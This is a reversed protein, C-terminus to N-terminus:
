VQQTRGAPYLRNLAEGGLRLLMRHRQAAPVHRAIRPETAELEPHIVAAYMKLRPFPPLAIPPKCFPPGGSMLRRLLLSGGRRM